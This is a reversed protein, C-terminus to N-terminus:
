QHEKVGRLSQLPSHSSGDSPPLIISIYSLPLWTLNADVNVTL